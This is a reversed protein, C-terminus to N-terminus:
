PPSEPSAPQNLLKGCHPCTRAANKRSIADLFGAGLISTPLAFMGIGLIAVVGACLRGLVTVPYIDGYGVTTLTAVAWWMTAPISSFVEPQATHECYYLLSSSVVLLLGMLVTSLILEERRATVADRLLGLASYYRGVKALRFLRMLRLVRLSRLDIGLFPLYFPLIALLDVLTLPQLAARLRGRVPGAFRPDVTCSWLRALYELTFVLVSFVEFAALQAGWQQRVEEVSGFVVAAANLFILVLISLDFAHSIRDGERAVEVIEWIRRRIAM